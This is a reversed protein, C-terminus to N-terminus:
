SWRAVWGAPWRSTRTGSCWRDADLEGAREFGPSSPDLYRGYPPL